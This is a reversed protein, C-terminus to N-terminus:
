NIDIKIEWLSRALQLDFLDDIDISTLKNTLFVSAKMLDYVKKTEIFWKVDTIYLNGNIFFCDKFDQRRRAHDPRSLYSYGDLYNYIFDSPHQIPDSVTIMCPTNSRAFENLAENIMNVSRFPCTPQLLVIASPYYNSESLIM